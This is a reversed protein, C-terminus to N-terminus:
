TIKFIQQAQRIKKMVDMCDVERRSEDNMKFREEIRKKIRQSHGMLSTQNKRCLCVYYAILNRGLEETLPLTVTTSKKGVVDEVKLETQVYLRGDEERVVKLIPEYTM